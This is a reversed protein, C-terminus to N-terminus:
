LKELTTHELHLLKRGVDRFLVEIKNDGMFRSVVGKGFAPHKVRDGLRLGSQQKDSFGKDEEKTRIGSLGAPRALSGREYFRGRRRGPQILIPMGASSISSRQEMVEMPLARIFSSLGNRYGTDTLRWMPLDEQGPYCIILRDKARTAAVYMLRREEEIAAMNSYAKFSPFYGEMVWIIFVVSWELGKASHVTSLTLCDKIPGLTVDASSSPPELVLDDLFARLRKYRGAMPIMQELDKQRKPFDDFNEKLIPDYYRNVLEVAKEPRINERSLNKMLEALSKLGADKKGAGPWQDVQWPMSRGERMWDIISQSKKQGINGILRLVRGWSISDNRNVTIRLHALLDKIHASEMFKFGGYKVFPIERRMLELELEFSHHAARFLVAMDNLSLGQNLYGEVSQSIFMAQEPDTRADVVMPKEGGKRETFLCKTYRESAQDMIANTLTLIPQTSRYNQELKIIKVEPFLGPFDFMNRYNAGRFSYISQSDDGVVMINRHDSALWKVIEAQIGNTDQYEDVMVYRYRMSLEARIDENNSLLQGFFILLDDYDMVQNKKKYEMYLDAVTVVHEVHELFQDYEERMLSEISLEMNVAKSFISALTSKKPFRISGRDPHIEKVIAQIVEEMDQRDLITFSSDFGLLDTHSRLVRHALSHFTGGSVNQCREDALGAARELMEAAAKRTFTLLLINEPPVGSEVLKAVRYVLTRTKGSGAGAIVIVPGELTTVAELQRPNLVEKYNIRDRLFDKRKGSM